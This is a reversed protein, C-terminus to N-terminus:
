ESNRDGGHDTSGYIKRFERYEEEEARLLLDEGDRSYRAGLYIIMWMATCSSCWYAALVIMLVTGVAALLGAPLGTWSVVGGATSSVPSFISSYFPVLDPAARSFGSEIAAATGSFGSFRDVLSGTLHVSGWAFIIFLLFAPIRMAAGAIVAKIIRFPKSTITSFLEFLNEFTDGGTSATIVPVLHYSFALAIGALIIFLGLIWAPVMLLATVVPGAAPIKGLLGILLLLFLGLAIGSLITVPTLLVPKWNARCVKGADEESYFQDGRLQEFTLRAVKMSTTMMILVALLTGLVLLVIAPLSSFFLADPLPCLVSSSFREAMSDGAAYFGAYVFVTWLIWAGILGKWFAWINRANFGYRASLVADSVSFNLKHVYNKVARDSGEM